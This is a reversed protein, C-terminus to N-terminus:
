STALSIQYEEQDDKRMNYYLTVGWGRGRNNSSEEVSEGGSKLKGASFLSYRLITGCANNM